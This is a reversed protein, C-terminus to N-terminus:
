AILPYRKQQQQEVKVKESSKPIAYVTIYADNINELSSPNQFVLVELKKPLKASATHKCFHRLGLKIQDEEVAIVYASSNKDNPAKNWMGYDSFLCM